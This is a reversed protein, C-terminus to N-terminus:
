AARVASIRLRRYDLYWTDGRFLKPRLETEAAQVVQEPLKPQYFMNLWDRLGTEGALPTPRDFLIARVLEFGNAELLAGYEVIGPFYWPNRGTVALISATNGKGGFEAVFRGGPKLAQAVMCIVQEPPQIWHLVANSFVADYQRDPQYTRADAVAFELAPYRSRAQAIMEESRDIGVVVAARRAIEETLHGTGCGLDLIVEGPTPALDDVLGAGMEFVYQHRADYTQADWSQSM